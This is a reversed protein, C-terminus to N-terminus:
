APGDKGGRKLTPNLAFYAAPPLGWVIEPIDGVEGRAVAVLVFVAWVGLVTLMVTNRVWDDVVVGLSHDICQDATEM